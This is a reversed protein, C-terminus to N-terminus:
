EQLWRIYGVIADIEAASLRTEYAPMQVVQRGSFYRALPNSQHRDIRGELIWQRLEAESKVLEEYDGGRWPPIIGKFSRPNPM